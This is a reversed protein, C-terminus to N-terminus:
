WEMWACIQLRGLSSLSRGVGARVRRCPVNAVAHHLALKLVAGDTSVEQEVFHAGPAHGGHVEPPQHPRPAERSRDGDFPRMRWGFTAAISSTTDISPSSSRTISYMWPSGSERSM